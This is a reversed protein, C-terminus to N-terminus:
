ARSSNKEAMYHGGGRPGGPAGQQQELRGLKNMIEQFATNHQEGLARIERVSTALDSVALELYHGQVHSKALQTALVPDGVGLNVLEAIARDLDQQYQAERNM